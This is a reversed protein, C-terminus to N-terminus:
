KTALSACLVRPRGSFNCGAYSTMLSFNPSTRARANNESLGNAANSPRSSGYTGSTAGSSFVFAFFRNKNKQPSRCRARRISCSISTEATVECSQSFAHPRDDSAARSKQPRVKAVPKDCLPPFHQREVVQDSADRRIVCMQRLIWFKLAAVVNVNALRNRDIAADIVNQM